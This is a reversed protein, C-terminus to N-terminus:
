EIKKLRSNHFSGVLNGPETLFAIISTDRLWPLFVRSYYKFTYKSCHDPNKYIGYLGHLGEYLRHWSAGEFQIGKLDEFDLKVLDGKQFPEKIKM